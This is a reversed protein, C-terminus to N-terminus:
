FFFNLLLIFSNLPWFSFPSMFETGWKVLVQLPVEGECPATEEDCLPSLVAWEASSSFPQFPSESGAWASHAVPFM